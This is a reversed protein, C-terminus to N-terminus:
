SKQLVDPVLHEPSETHLAKMLATDWVQRLDSVKASVAPKGDIRILLKEPVTRGIRDARVGWRVAIQKINEAKKPDCSILVRSAMEGFLVAETFVGNSNLDIEAGVHPVGAGPKSKVFCAEALAVALGGDSCDHASEIGHEAVLERVCKQLAAEQKLDLAPPM